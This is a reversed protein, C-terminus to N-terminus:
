YLVVRHDKRCLLLEIPKTTELLFIKLNEALPHGYVLNKCKASIPFEVHSEPGM